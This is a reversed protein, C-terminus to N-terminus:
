CDVEFYKIEIPKSINHQEVIMASYDGRSKSRKERARGRVRELGRGVYAVICLRQV